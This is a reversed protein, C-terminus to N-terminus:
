HAVHTCTRVAGRSGRLPAARSRDGTPQVTHVWDRWREVTATIAGFVTELVNTDPVYEQTGRAVEPVSVKFRGGRRHDLIAAFVSADNLQPLPCWDISGDRGVLAVTRLNGIAGYDEILLYDAAM